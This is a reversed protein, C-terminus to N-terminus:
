ADITGSEPVIGSVPRSHGSDPDSWAADVAEKGAAKVTYHTADGRSPSHTTTATPAGLYARVRKLGPEVRVRGRTTSDTM